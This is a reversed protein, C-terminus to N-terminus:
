PTKIVPAQLDLPIANLKPLAGNPSSSPGLNSFNWYTDTFGPGTSLLSGFGSGGPIPNETEEWWDAQYYGIKGLITSLLSNVVYEGLGPAPSESYFEVPSGMLPTYKVVLGDNSVGFGDRGDLVDVISDLLSSGGGRTVEMGYRGYNNFLGVVVGDSGDGVVRGVDSGPSSVSPNLAVNDRIIGNGSRQGVIGGVYNSTGVVEGTAYSYRVTDSGEFRGVLGGVSSVGTVDGTAYTNIITGSNFGVLGGIISDGNVDISAFSRSINDSNLGVLGGVNNDGNVTGNGRVSSLTISGQQLRGVLGGVNLSGTVIATIQVHSNTITGGNLNGVLGGTNDNGNVTAINLRVNKVEGSSIYGFLGTSDTTGTISLNSITYDVGEHRGDYSGAFRSANSNTNNDGIPIFNTVSSMDIDAIQRYHANLDWKELPGVGKGVRQLTYIDYVYFPSSATGLGPGPDDLEWVAYFSLEAVGEPVTDNEFDWPKPTGVRYWGKLKVTHGSNLTRTTEISPPPITEGVKVDVEDVTAGGFSDFKIAVEVPADIWVANFQVAPTSSTSLNRVTQGAQYDTTTNNRRWVSFVKGTPASSPADALKEDVDYTHTQNLAMIQGNDDFYVVNYKIPIWSAYLTMRGTVPTDFNWKPSTLTPNETTHWGNLTYGTRTAIPETVKEGEKPTQPDPDDAGPGADFEVAFSGEPIELWKAYVTINNLVETNITFTNGNGDARTNWEEFVYDPRSPRAPLAPVTLEGPQLEITQEEGNYNYNFKVTRVTTARSGNGDKGALNSFFVDCSALLIILAFILLKKM